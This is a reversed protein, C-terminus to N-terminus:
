QPQPKPEVNKALQEVAAALDAIHKDIMNGTETGGEGPKTEGYQNLFGISARRYASGVEEYAAAAPTVDDRKKGTGPTVGRAILRRELEEITDREQGAYGAISGVASYFKQGSTRGAKLENLKKLMADTNGGMADLEDANAGHRTRFEDSGTPSSPTMAYVGGALAAIGVGKAMPSRIARGFLGRGGRAAVGGGAVGAAGVGSAALAAMNMGGGAAAAGGGGGAMMMGAMGMMPGGLAMGALGGIARRGLGGVGALGAVGVGGALLTGLMVLKQGTGDLGEMFERVYRVGKTFLEIMPKFASAFERNMLQMQYDLQNQEVTGQFGSRAANGAAVGAAMAGGGLMRGARSQSAQELRGYLAGATGYRQRLDLRRAEAAARAQEQSARAQERQKGIRELHDDVSQLYQQHRDVAGKVGSSVKGIEAEVRKQRELIRVRETLLDNHRKADAPIFGATDIEDQVKKIRRLSEEKQRLLDLYEREEQPSPV